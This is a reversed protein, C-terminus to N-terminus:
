AAERLREQPAIRGTTDTRQNWFHNVLEAVKERPHPRMAERFFAIQKCPTNFLQVDEGLVVAGQEQVLRDVGADVRAVGISADLNWAQALKVGLGIMVAALSVGVSPTRWEPLVSYMEMSLVQEAGRDRLASLYAETYFRRFYSHEKPGAAGLDFYSHAHLAVTEGRHELVGIVDQRLFEDPNPKLDTGNDSLVKTWFRHWFQFARDHLAGDQFGPYPKGPLLHYSLSRSLLTKM